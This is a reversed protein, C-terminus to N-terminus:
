ATKEMMARLVVAAQRELEDIRGDNRIVWDCRREKEALPWQADIRRHIDADSWGRDRLRRVQEEPKCTVCVV